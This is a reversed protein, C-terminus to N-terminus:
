LRKWPNDGLKIIQTYLLKTYYFQVLITIINILILFPSVCNAFIPSSLIQLVYAFTGVLMLFAILFSQGALDKRQFFMLTLCIPIFLAAIFGLFVNVQENPIKSFNQSFFQHAFFMILFGMSFAFVSIFYWQKKEILYIKSFYPYGYKFYTYIIGLDLLLWPLNFMRNVPYFFSYTFEYGFNLVLPILPMGYTKDKIGKYIIFVYALIWCFGGTAGLLITIYKM